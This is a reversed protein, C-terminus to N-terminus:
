HSTKETEFTGYTVRTRHEGNKWDTLITLSNPKITIETNDDTFGYADWLRCYNGRMYNPMPEGNLNMKGNPHSLFVTENASKILGDKLLQQMVKDRFDAHRRESARDIETHARSDRAHQRAEAKLKVADTRAVSRATEAQSRAMATDRQAREIEKRAQKIAKLQANRGYSNPDARMAREASELGKM